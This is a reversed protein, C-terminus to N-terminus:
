LLIALYIMLFM